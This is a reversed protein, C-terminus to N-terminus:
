QRCTRFERVFLHSALLILDPDALQIRSRFEGRVIASGDAEVISRQTIPLLRMDTGLLAQEYDRQLTVNGSKLPGVLTEMLALESSVVEITKPRMNGAVVGFVFAVLVISAYVAWGIWRGGPNAPEYETM